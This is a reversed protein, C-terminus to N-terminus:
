PLNLPQSFKFSFGKWNASEPRFDQSGRTKAFKCFPKFAPWIITFAMSSVTLLYNSNKSATLSMHNTAKKPNLRPKLQSSNLIKSSYRKLFLLFDRKRKIAPCGSFCNGSTIKKISTRSKQPSKRSKTKASNQTNINTQMKSKKLLPCFSHPHRSTVTLSM